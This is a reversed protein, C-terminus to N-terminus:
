ASQRRHDFHEHNLSISAIFLNDSISIDFLFGPSSGTLLSNIKYLGTGGEQNSLPSFENQWEERRQRVFENPQVINDATRNLISLLDKGAKLEHNITVATESCGYRLANELAIFLSIFLSRAERYNLELDSKSSNYTLTKGKHQFISRFSSVAAEIVTGLNEYTELNESGVFRFWPLVVEIEKTFDSRSNRIAQMLNFLSANGKWSNVEAELEDLCASVEPLLTENILQQAARAGNSALEFMFNILGNFFTDFTKYNNVVEALRGLRESTPSFDFPQNSPENNIWVKFGDNIKSLIKDIKESFLKLIDDLREIVEGNLFNYENRWYDNVLYEGHKQVTVLKNKEFCARLQPVFIQHRVEASLYKDLGFKENLAFDYALTLFLTALVTTKEGSDRSSGKEMSAQTLSGTPINSIPLLPEWFFDDGLSQVQDFLGMYVHRRQNELAQVDVYLKGTEIKARLKESFLTELVKDRESELSEGEGIRAEILIDIIAVREHIVDDYSDFEIINDLQIPICIKELFYISLQTLAKESFVKSPMHTGINELFELFIDTCLEDFRGDSERDYIDLAVMAALYDFEDDREKSEIRKCIGEFPLHDFAVRNNLYEAIYFAVEDWFQEEKLFSECRAVLFDSYIPFEKPDLAVRSEIKRHKLLRYQPVDAVLHSTLAELHFDDGNAKPTNFGGLCFTQRRSVEILNEDIRYRQIAVLHYILSKAWAEKRFKVAIRHLYAARESSKQDLTLIKGLENALRSFFTNADFPTGCFIRARAYLELLGYAAASGAQVLSDIEKIVFDYNGVTYETVIRAVIEDTSERPELINLLEWDDINRAIELVETFIDGLLEKADESEMILTRFLLYQDFISWEMYNHLADVSPSREKDYFIPLLSMSELEGYNAIGEINATKYEKIRGSVKELYLDVSSSESLLLLDIILISLNLNPYSERLGNILAKTDHGLIEKKIHIETEISWWSRSKQNIQNLTQLAAEANGKLIESNINLRSALFYKLLTNNRRFVEIIWYAYNASSIDAAKIRTGHFLVEPPYIPLFNKPLKKHQAVKRLLDVRGYFSYKRIDSVLRRCVVDQTEGRAKFFSRENIELKSPRKKSQNTM